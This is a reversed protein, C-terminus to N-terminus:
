RLIKSLVEGLAEKMPKGQELTMLLALEEKHSIILDHRRAIHYTLFLM